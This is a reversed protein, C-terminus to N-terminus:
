NSRHESNNGSNSQVNNRGAKKRNKKSGSYGNGDSSRNIPEQNGAESLQRDSEAKATQEYKKLTYGMVVILDSICNSCSTNVKTGHLELQIKAMEEIDNSQLGSVSGHVKMSDFAWKMTNLFKYQDESLSKAEM